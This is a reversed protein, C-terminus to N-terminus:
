AVAAPGRGPQRLQARRVADSRAARPRRWEHRPVHRHRDQPHRRDAPEGPLPVRHEVPRPGALRRSRRHRQCQFRGGPPLRRDAPMTHAASPAPLRGHRGLPVVALQANASDTAYVANRSIDLDNLFGTGTFTYTQLLKGTRAKFVRITGTPRGAVWLRGWRDLHLGVAVRGVMGPVLIRDRGTKLNVTWITGNALSGAYLRAGQSEIGEPQFGDPLDIRRPLDRGHPGEHAAVGPAVAVSLGLVLGILMTLRRRTSTM